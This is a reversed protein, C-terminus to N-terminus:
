GSFEMVQLPATTPLISNYSEIADPTELDLEMLLRDFQRQERKFRNLQASSKIGEPAKPSLRKVVRCIQDRVEPDKAHQRILDRLAHRMIEMTTSHKQRAIENVAELVAVHETITKRQKMKALQNPM